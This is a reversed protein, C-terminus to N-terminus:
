PTAADVPPPPPPPPPPPAAPLPNTAFCLDAVVRGGLLHEQIVREHNAPTLNRYWAGEPYVVGVPGATCIRLCACKTRYVPGDRGTLKLDKLRRKLYEWAEQGRGADVCEPGLCLFLHRALRGIGFQAAMVAPPLHEPNAM